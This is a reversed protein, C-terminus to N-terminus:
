SENRLMNSESVTIFLPFEFHSKFTEKKKEKKDWQVIEEKTDSFIWDLAQRKEKTENSNLKFESIANRYNENREM